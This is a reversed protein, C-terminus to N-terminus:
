RWRWPLCPFSEASPQPRADTGLDSRLWTTRHALSNNILTTKRLGSPRRSENLLEGGGGLCALFRNPARNLDRMQEWTADDTEAISQGGAFGGLVHVLVDLRGYSAATTDIAERVAAGKTFDVSIPFFNPAPFDQSSISRSAGVVTAGTSLFRNTVFTGLGGKAGTIFVVKASM